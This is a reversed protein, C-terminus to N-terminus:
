KRPRVIRAAVESFIGGSHGLSFQTRRLGFSNKLVQRANKSTV